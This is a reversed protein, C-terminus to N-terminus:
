KWELCQADSRRADFRRSLSANATITAANPMEM